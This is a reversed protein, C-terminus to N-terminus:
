ADEEDLVAHVMARFTECAGPADEDDLRELFEAMLTELTDEDEAPEEAASAGGIKGGLGRPMILLAKAM